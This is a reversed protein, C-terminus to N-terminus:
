AARGRLQFVNTQQCCFNAWDSMLIKRKEFLDGRRYAAEVKNGLTHALAMEVVHNPHATMEAAWDRFSSRFGHVTIGPRLEHALKLMAMNSLPKGPRGGVFVHPNDAESKLETIKRLVFDCLPVRHERSAKMRHAPITWTAAPLDIEDWTANIVENTRLATLITIELARAAIGNKAVLRSFFESMEAYPLAPHHIIRKIRAPAPLLHDLHGRWRAPNEKKRLGRVAAWDFIKEIRGRLRKATEPKEHWIPELSKLVLNTDVESVSTLGFVPFAYRDLTASWQARHKANRWSPSHAAVYREAAEKFTILSGQALKKEGAERHRKDIPDIGERTLARAQAAFIRASKLSVDRDGYPGLGLQRVKGSVPSTFQFIWSKTRWRSVQLWLGGGDGYRGPDLNKEIQAVTLKNIHM